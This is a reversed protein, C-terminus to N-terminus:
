LIYKNFYRNVLIRNYGDEGRWFEVYRWDHRGTTPRNYSKPKLIECCGLIELINHREYKNGNMFEKLGDRLKGPYDGENLNEILRLIDNFIKIDKETSPTINEEKFLKLDIYNYLLDSYRVGGWKIREFNLINIDEEEYNFDNPRYQERKGELILKANFYSAIASRWDLRKNTLSSIFGDVITEVPISKILDNLKSKLEATTISIPDFMLGKSKAYEFDSKDTYHESKWGQSTWYTKFLISKAKKDM